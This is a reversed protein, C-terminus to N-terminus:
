SAPHRRVTYKICAAIGPRGTKVTATTVPPPEPVLAASHRMIATGLRASSTWAPLIRLAGLRCEAMDPSAQAGAKAAIGNPRNPVGSSTAAAM